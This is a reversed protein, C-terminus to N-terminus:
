RTWTFEWGRETLADFAWSAEVSELPDHIVLMPEELEYCGGIVVVHGGNINRLYVEVPRGSAVQERIAEFGVIGKRSMFIGRSLLLSEVRDPNCPRNCFESGPEECCGSVGFTENVFECQSPSHGGQSELIMLACAVWCWLTQEQQIHRQVIAAGAAQFAKAEPLAEFAKVEPLAPLTIPVQDRLLPRLRRKSAM